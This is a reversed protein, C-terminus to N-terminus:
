VGYNERTINIVAFCKEIMEQNEPGSCPLLSERFTQFSLDVRVEARALQDLPCM